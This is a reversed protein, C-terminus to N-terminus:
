KMFTHNEVEIYEERDEKLEELITRDQDPKLNQVVQNLEKLEEVSIVDPAAEESGKVHDIAPTSSPSIIPATDVMEEPSPQVVTAEQEKKQLSSTSCVTLNTFAVTNKLLYM